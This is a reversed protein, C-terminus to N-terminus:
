RTPLRIGIHAAARLHPEWGLRLDGGVYVCDTLHARAGGGATFAGEHPDGGYGDDHRMYGGGVAVYPVVRTEPRERVLDVWLVGLVFWDCDRWPGRMYTVEPGVSLRSGLPIRLGGGVVKHHITADDVFGAWGFTGEVAMPRPEQAAATVASGALAGVVAVGTAVSRFRM